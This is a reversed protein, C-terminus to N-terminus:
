QFAMPAQLIGRRFELRRQRMTKSTGSRCIFFCETKQFLSRSSPIFLSLQSLETLRVKAPGVESPRVEVHRVESPRVESVRVEAPRDEVLRV